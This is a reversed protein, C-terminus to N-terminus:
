VAPITCTKTYVKGCELTNSATNTATAIATSGGEDTYVEWTLDGIHTSRPQDGAVVFSFVKEQGAPIIVDGCDLNIKVNKSYYSTGGYQGQYSYTFNETQSKLYSYTSGSIGCMYGSKACRMIIHDIAKDSTSDNILVFKVIAATTHLTVAGPEFGSGGDKEIRGFMPIVGDALGMANSSNYTQERPIWTAFEYLTITVDSIDSTARNIYMNIDGSYPYTVLYPVHSAFTTLSGCSFVASEGAASTNRFKYATPYHNNRKIGDEPTPYTLPITSVRIAEDSGGEWAMNYTYYGSGPTTESMTMTTKTSESGLVATFSVEGTENLDNSLTGKNCACLALSPLIIALFLKKM